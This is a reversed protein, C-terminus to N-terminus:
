PVPLPATEDFAYLEELTVREVATSPNKRAIASGWMSDFLHRYHQIQTRNKTFVGIIEPEYQETLFLLIDGYIGFDIYNSPM